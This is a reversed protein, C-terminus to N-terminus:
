EALAENFEEMSSYIIIESASVRKHEKTAYTQRCVSSVNARDPATQKVTAFKYSQSIIESDAKGKKADSMAQRVQQCVIRPEATVVVVDNSTIVTVDFSEDPYTREGQEVTYTEGVTPTVTM